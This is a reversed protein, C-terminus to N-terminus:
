KVILNNRHLPKNGQSELWLTSPEFGLWASIDKPSVNIWMQWEGGLHWHTVQCDSTYHYNCPGWSFFLASASTLLIIIILLLLLITPITLLSTPNVTTKSTLNTMSTIMWLVILLDEHYAVYCKSSQLYFFYFSSSLDWRQFISLSNTTKDIYIGNFMKYHLNKKSLSIRDFCRLLMLDSCIFYQSPNVDFSDLIHISCDSITYNLTIFAFIHLFILSLSIYTIAINSYTNMGTSSRRRYM